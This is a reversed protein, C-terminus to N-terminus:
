MSLDEDELRAIGLERAGLEIRKEIDAQLQPVGSKNRDQAVQSYKELCLLALSDLGLTKTSTHLQRNM